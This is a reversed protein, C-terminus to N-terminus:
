TLGRGQKSCRDIPWAQLGGVELSACCKTHLGHERAWKPRAVVAHTDNGLSQATEVTERMCCSMSM